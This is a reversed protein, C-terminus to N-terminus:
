LGGYSLVKRGNRGRVVDGAGRRVACSLTAAALPRVATRPRAARWPRATRATSDPAAGSDPRPHFALAQVYGAGGDRPWTPDPSGPSQGQPLGTMSVDKHPSGVPRGLGLWGSAEEKDSFLGSGSLVAGWSTCLSRPPVPSLDETTLGPRDNCSPSRGESRYSHRQSDDPCGGPCFSQRPLRGAGHLCPRALLPCQKISLAGQPPGQGPSVGCGLSM